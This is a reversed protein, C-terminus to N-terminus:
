GIHSRKSPRAQLAQSLLFCSFGPAQGGADALLAPTTERQQALCQHDAVAVARRGVGATGGRIAPNVRYRTTPRGPGAADEGRIRGFDVL